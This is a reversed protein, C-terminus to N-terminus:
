EKQKSECNVQIDSNEYKYIDTSNLAVPFTSVIVQENSQRSIILGCNQKEVLVPIMDGVAIQKIMRNIECSLDERTQCSRIKYLTKIMKGTRKSLIQENEFMSLVDLMLTILGLDVDRKKEDHYERIPLARPWVVNTLIEKHTSSTPKFLSSNFEINAEHLEVENEEPADDRENDAEFSFATLDM